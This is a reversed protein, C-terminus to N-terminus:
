LHGKVCVGVCLSIFGWSYKHRNKNTKRAKKEETKRAKRKKKKKKTHTFFAPHPSHRGGTQRRAMLPGGVVGVAVASAAAVMM